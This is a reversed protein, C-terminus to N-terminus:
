PKPLARKVMETGLKAIIELGPYSAAKELTSRYTRNVGAM